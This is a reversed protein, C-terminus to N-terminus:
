PNSLISSTFDCLLLDIKLKHAGVCRKCSITLRDNNTEYIDVMLWFFLRSSTSSILLRLIEGPGARSFLDMPHHAQISQFLCSTPSKLPWTMQCKM